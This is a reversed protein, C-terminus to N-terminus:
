AFNVSTLYNQIRKPFTNKHNEEIMTVKKCISMDAPNKCGGSYAIYKQGVLWAQWYEEANLKRTFDRTMDAVSQIGGLARNNVAEDILFALPSVQKIQAIGIANAPLPFGKEVDTRETLTWIQKRGKPATPGYSLMEFKVPPADYAYFAQLVLPHLPWKHHAFALLANKSGNDLYTIDSFEARFVVEGGREIKLSKGTKEVALGADSKGAAWSMASEVWFADLSIGGGMDLKQLRGNKTAGRVAAIDRYAKAYLSNNEFLHRGTTKGDMGYEPKVVLIRNLKFDYITTIKDVEMAAFDGGILLKINQVAATSQSFGIGAASSSEVEYKLITQLTNGGGRLNLYDKASLYFPAIKPSPKRPDSIKPLTIKSIKPKTEMVRKEVNKDTDPSKVDPVTPADPKFLNKIYESATEPKETNAESSKAIMDTATIVPLDEPVSLPVGSLGLDNVIKERPTYEQAADQAIATGFFLCTFLIAFLAINVVPIISLIRINKM